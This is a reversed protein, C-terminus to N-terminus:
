EIKRGVYCPVVFEKVENFYNDYNFQDVTIDIIINDDIEIWSHFFM